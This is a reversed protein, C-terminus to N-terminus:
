TTQVSMHSMWALHHSVDDGNITGASLTSRKSPSASGHRVGPEPSDGLDGASQSRFIPRGTREAAAKAASHQNSCVVALHIKLINMCAGAVLECSWQGSM